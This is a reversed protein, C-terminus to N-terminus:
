CKCIGAFKTFFAPGPQANNPDGEISTFVVKFAVPVTKVENPLVLGAEFYQM